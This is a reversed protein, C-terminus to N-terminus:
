RGDRLGQLFDSLAKVTAHSPRTAIGDKIRILTGRDVGTEHAVRSLVMYQLHNKIEDLSLMKGGKAVSTYFVGQVNNSTTCTKCQPTQLTNGGRLTWHAM